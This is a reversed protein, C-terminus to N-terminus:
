EANNDCHQLHSVVTDTRKLWYAVWASKKTKKDKTYCVSNIVHDASVRVKGGKNESTRFWSPFSRSFHLIEVLHDFLSPFPEIPPLDSYGSISSRSNYGLILKFYDTRTRKAQWVKVSDRLFLLTLKEPIPGNELINIIFTFLKEAVKRDM